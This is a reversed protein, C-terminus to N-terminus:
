AAVLHIADLATTQCEPVIRASDLFAPQRISLSSPFLVQITARDCFKRAQRWATNIPYTYGPPIPAMFSLSECITGAQARLFYRLSGRMVISSSVRLCSSRILSSSKCSHLHSFSFRSMSVEDRRIGSTSSRVWMRISAPLFLNCHHLRLPYRIPGHLRAIPM